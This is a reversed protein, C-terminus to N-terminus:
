KSTLPVISKERLPPNAGILARTGEFTFIAMRKQDDKLRYGYTTSHNIQKGFTEGRSGYVSQSSTDVHDKYPQGLLYVVRGKQTGVAISEFQEMTIPTDM